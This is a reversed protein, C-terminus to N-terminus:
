QKRLQEEIQIRAKLAAMLNDMANHVKLSELNEMADICSIRLPAVLAFEKVISMLADPRAGEDM